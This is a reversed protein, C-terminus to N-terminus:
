KEKIVPQKFRLDIYRINEPKLNAKDFIIKLTKMKKDIDDQDVIIELGNDLYFYIKSLNEVNIKELSVNFSKFERELIRLISLAVQLSKDSIVRGVVINDPHYSIGLVLPLSKDTSNKSVVFGKSDVVVYTRGIYVAASPKREILEIEIIDPLRRLARVREAEPYAWKLQRQLEELDIEFINKGKLHSFRELGKFSEGSSSVIEQVRFYSSDVFMWYIKRASVFVAFALLLFVVM